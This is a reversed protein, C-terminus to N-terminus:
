LDHFFNGVLVKVNLVSNLCLAILLYYKGLIRIVCQKLFETFEGKGPFAAKKEKFNVTEEWAWLDQPWWEAHFEPDRMAIRTRPEDPYQRQQSKVIEKTVYPRLYDFGLYQVPFPLKKPPANSRLRYYARKRDLQPGNRSAASMEVMDDVDQSAVEMWTPDTEIEADIKNKLHQSGCTEVDTGDHHVFVNPRNHVQHLVESYYYIQNLCHQEKPQTSVAM